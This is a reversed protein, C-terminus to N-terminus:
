TLSAILSDLNVDIADGQYEPVIVNEDFNLDKISDLVNFYQKENYFEELESNGSLDINFSLNKRINKLVFESENEYQLYIINLPDKRGMRHARGIVQEEMEKTMKHVFIIHTSNEFNMGCGFLTSNSLLIKANGFKYEHVANDIDKINGKDLDVYNVDNEICTDQIYQFINSYDSFIIVKHDESKLDEIFKKLYINKSYDKIEFNIANDKIIDKEDIVNTDSKNVEYYSLSEKSTGDNNCFICSSKGLKYWNEICYECIKNNCCPSTIYIKSDKLQSDFLEYCVPCCNNKELRDYILDIKETSDKINKDSVEVIKNYIELQSDAKQSNDFDSLSKILIDLYEKTETFINYFSNVQSNILIKTDNETKLKFIIEYINNIMIVLRRLNIISNDVNSNLTKRVLYERFIKDVDNLNYLIELIDDLIARLTKSDEKRANRIINECDKNELDINIYFDTCISFNSIFDLINSKFNYLKEIKNIYDELNKENEVIYEKHMTFFEIKEKADNMKFKDFEILIKRNKLILEIIEKENRAKQNDFNTNYLTYDSANLGLLEKHTIVDELINDIYINKCLYYTKIPSDLYINSNIFDDECKCSITQLDIDELSNKYYGLLEENFSASIFWIFNANIKTSIVNSISDIEDFFIRNININLSNLTTAIHYYYSSTTLIIDTEYLINQNNYLTMLNEYNIFKKYSLNKSFNEISMIWQTYINQPVIIINTENEKKTEHILSLVVYTKGTGPKDNMIGFNNFEINEIITCRKLMALQHKKLQINVNQPHNALESNENLLETM